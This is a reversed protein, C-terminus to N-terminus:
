RGADGLQGFLDMPADGLRRAREVHNPLWSVADRLKMRHSGFAGLKLSYVFGAPAQAAWRDFADRTPLRYFTSNLEVTDFMSTYHAFWSRKPIDAPYVVGRWDDYM